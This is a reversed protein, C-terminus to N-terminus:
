AITNKYRYETPSVRFHQRFVRSFHLADAYGTSLAVVNVPEKSTALLRAAEDMRRRMLFRAPPVGVRGLWHRRFTAASMGAKRALEGWDIPEALNKSLYILIETIPDRVPLQSTSPAFLDPSLSALILQETLRDLHDAQEPSGPQNILRFIQHLAAEFSKLNGVPWVPEPNSLFNRFRLAEEQDRSYILFLEVWSGQLGTPGYEQSRGPLQTLVFPARVEYSRGGARFAGTGEIIFSFNYTEFIHDTWNKKHSHFGIKSLQLSSPFKRYALQVSAFMNEMKKVRVDM